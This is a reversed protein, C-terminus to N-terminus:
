KVIFYSKKLPLKDRPNITGKFDKAPSRSIQARGTPIKFVTDDQEGKAHNTESDQHDMDSVTCISASQRRLVCYPRTNTLSSSVITKYAKNINRTRLQDVKM